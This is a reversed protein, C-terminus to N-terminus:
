GIGFGHVVIRCRGNCPAPQLAHRENFDLVNENGVGPTPSVIPRTQNKVALAVQEYRDTVALGVRVLVLGVVGSLIATIMVTGHITEMVIAANRGIIWEYALVTDFGRDPAIPM